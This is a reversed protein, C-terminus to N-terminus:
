KSKAGNEIECSHYAKTTLRKLRFFIRYGSALAQKPLVFMETITVSRSGAGTGRYACFGNAMSKHIEIVRPETDFRWQDGNEVVRINAFLPHPMAGDLYHSTDQDLDNPTQETEVYVGTEQLIWPDYNPERAEDEPPEVLWWYDRDRESM